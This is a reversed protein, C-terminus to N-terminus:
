GGMYDIEFQAFFMTKLTNESFHENFRENFDIVPLVRGKWAIEKVEGNILGLEVEDVVSEKKM